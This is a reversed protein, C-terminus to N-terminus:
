QNFRYTNAKNKNHEYQKVMKTHLKRPNFGQDSYINSISANRDSFYTDKNFSRMMIKDIHQQQTNQQETLFTSASNFSDETFACFTNGIESNSFVNQKTKYENIYYQIFLEVSVKNMELISNYPNLKKIEPDYTYKKKFNCYTKYMFERIQENINPINDINLNFKEKIHAEIQQKVVM